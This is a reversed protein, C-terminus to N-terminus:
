GVSKLKVPICAFKNKFAKETRLAGTEPDIIRKPFTPIVLSNLHNIVGIPLEYTEGDFLHFRYPPKANADLTFAEDAGPNDLNQFKVKVTTDKKKKCYRETSKENISQAKKKIGDELADLAAIMKEKSMTEKLSYGRSQAYQILEEKTMKSLKM